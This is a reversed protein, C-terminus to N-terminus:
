AAESARWVESADENALDIVYGSTTAMTFGYKQAALTLPASAEDVVSSNGASLTSM